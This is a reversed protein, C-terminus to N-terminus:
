WLFKAGTIDYPAYILLINNININLFMYISIEIINYNGSFSLALLIMPHMSWKESCGPFLLQQFFLSAPGGAQLQASFFMIMM